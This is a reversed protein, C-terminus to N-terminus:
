LEESELDQNTDNLLELIELLPPRYEFSYPNEDVELREIEKTNTDWTKSNYFFTANILWPHRHRKGHSPYRHYLPHYKPEHLGELAPHTYLSVQRDDEDQCKECAKRYELIYTVHYSKDVIPSVFHTSIGQCCDVTL